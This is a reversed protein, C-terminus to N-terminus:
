LRRAPPSTRVASFRVRLGWLIIKTEKLYVESSIHLRVRSLHPAIRYNKKFKPMYAMLSWYRHQTYKLQVTERRWQEPNIMSWFMFNFVLWQKINGDRLPTPLVSGQPLTLLQRSREREPIPSVKISYAFCTQLIFFHSLLIHSVYEFSSPKKCGVAAVQVKENILKLSDSSM